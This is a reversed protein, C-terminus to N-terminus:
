VCCFINRKCKPISNKFQSLQMVTLKENNKHLESIKKLAPDGMTQSGGTQEVDTANMASFLFPLFFFRLNSKIRRGFPGSKYWVALDHELKDFHCFM